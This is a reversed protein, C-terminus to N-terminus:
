LGCHYLFKEKDFAKNVMKSIDCFTNVNDIILSKHSEECNQLSRYFSGAMLKFHKKTM